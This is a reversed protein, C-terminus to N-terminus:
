SRPWIRQAVQEMVSVNFDDGSKPKTARYTAKIGDLAIHWHWDSLSGHKLRGGEPWPEVFSDGDYVVLLDIGARKLSKERRLQRLVDKDAFVIYDWDTPALQEM